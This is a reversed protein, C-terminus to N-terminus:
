KEFGPRFGKYGLSFGTAHVGRNFGQSSLDKGLNLITGFDGLTSEDLVGKINYIVYSSILVTILFLKIDQL